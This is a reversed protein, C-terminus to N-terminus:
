WAPLHARDADHKQSPLSSNSVLCHTQANYRKTGPKFTRTSNKENESQIFRDGRHCHCPAECVYKAGLDDGRFVRTVTDPHWCNVTGTDLCDQCSLRPGDTTGNPLFEKRSIKVAEEHSVGAKRLEDLRALWGPMDIKPRRQARSRAQSPKVESRSEREFRVSRAIRAVHAGLMERNFEPWSEANGQKIQKLATECDALSERALAELWDSCQARKTNEPLKAYWVDVSPFRAMLSPFWQKLFEQETM